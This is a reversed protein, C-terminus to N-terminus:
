IQDDNTKRSIVVDKAKSSLSPVLWRYLITAAFAGLLEAVIFGPRDVPRIGAFTNTFVRALMVAPYAFSTSATRASRGFSQAL